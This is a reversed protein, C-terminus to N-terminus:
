PASQTTSAEHASSDTGACLLRHPPWCADCGPLVAQAKGHRRHWCGARAVGVAGGLMSLPVPEPLLRTGVWRPLLPWALLGLGTHVRIHTCECGHAPLPVRSPMFCPLLLIFMEAERKGRDGGGVYVLSQRLHFAFQSFLLFSAM